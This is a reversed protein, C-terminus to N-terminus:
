NGKYFNPEEETGIRHSTMSACPGYVIPGCKKGKCIKKIMVSQAFVWIFGYILIFIFEMNGAELNLVGFLPEM